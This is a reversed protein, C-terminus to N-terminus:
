DPITSLPELPMGNYATTTEEKDPMDEGATSETFSELGHTTIALTSEEWTTKEPFRNKTTSVQDKWWDSDTTSSIPQDQETQIHNPDYAPRTQSIATTTEGAYPYYGESQETLLEEHKVGGKIDYFSVGGYNMEEAYAIIAKAQAEDIQFVRLTGDVNILLYGEAFIQLGSRGQFSLSKHYINMGISTQDLCYKTFEELNHATGELNFIMEKLASLDESESLTTLKTAVDYNSLVNGMYLMEDLSYVDVLSSFTMPEKANQNVFLNYVEKHNESQLEFPVPMHKVVVAYQPDVGKLYYLEGDVTQGESFLVDLNAFMSGIALSDRYRLAKVYRYSEYAGTLSYPPVYAYSDDATTWETTTAGGPIIWTEVAIETENSTDGCGGVEQGGSEWGGHLFGGSNVNWEGLYFTRDGGEQTETIDDNDFHIFPAAILGVAIVACAAIATMPKWISRKMSFKMTEAEEIYKEDIENMQKLLNENKKLM